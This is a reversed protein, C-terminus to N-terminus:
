RVRMALILTRGPINGHPGPMRNVQNRGAHKRQRSAAAARGEADRLRGRVALCPNSRHDARGPRNLHQSRIGTSKVASPTDARGHPVQARTHLGHDAMKRVGLYQLGRAVGVWVDSGALAAIYAPVFTPVNILRMGTQGLLGHCLHALYNRRLSGRVEQQFAAESAAASAAEATAM